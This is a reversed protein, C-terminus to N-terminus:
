IPKARGRAGTPRLGGRDAGGARGHLRRARPGARDAAPVRPHHRGAAQHLKAPGLVPGCQPRGARGAPRPGQLAGRHGASLAAARRPRGAHGRAHGRDLRGQAVCARARRMMARMASGGAERDIPVMDLKRIFWGFVPLRHLERKYVIAADPLPPLLVLTEWASQHELAVIARTAPKHELGRVQHTLGVLAALLALVGRASFRAIAMNARRSLLLAPASSASVSRGCRM